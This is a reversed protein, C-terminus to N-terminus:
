DGSRLPEAPAEVYPGEQGTERLFAREDPDRPPRTMGRPDSRERYRRVREIREAWQESPDRPNEQTM